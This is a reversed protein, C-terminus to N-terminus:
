FSCGDSLEYSIINHYLSVVHKCFKNNIPNIGMISTGTFVVDPKWPLVSFKMVMTWRTTLEYSGTKKVSHLQFDPQFLKKLLGINFMYGDIDDYKTIPDIFEVAEDYMSRDVGQDDFLHPLDDYLFKVLGDIDEEMEVAVRDPVSSRTAVQLLKRSRSSCCCFSCPVSSTILRTSGYPLPHLFTGSFFALSAM